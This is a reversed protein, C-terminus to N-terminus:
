YEFNKADTKSLVNRLRSPSPDTPSRHIASRLKPRKPGLDEDDSVLSISSPATSANDDDTYATRERNPLNELGTETM